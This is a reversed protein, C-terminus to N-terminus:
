KNIESDGCNDSWWSNRTWTPWLMYLSDKISHFWQKEQKREKEKESERDARKKEKERDMPNPIDIWTPELVLRLHTNPVAAPFETVDAVNETATWHPKLDPLYLSWHLLQILKPDAACLISAAKDRLFLCDGGLFITLKFPHLHGTALDIYIM